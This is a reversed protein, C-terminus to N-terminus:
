RLTFELRVLYYWDSPTSTLPISSVKLTRPGSTLRFHDDAAQAYITMLKNITKKGYISWKWDDRTIEDGYDTKWIPLSPTGANFQEIDNYLSKYYEVQVSFVDLLRATPLNIGVMVPIRRSMKSYYVPYDEVGLVAVETFLRLDEPGRINEPLLSGLNLAARGMLKIGKFTWHGTKVTDIISDNPPPAGSVWSIEKVAGASDKVHGTIYTNQDIKPTLRSPHTSLYHNLVAGGGVEFWKSTVSFDYGPSFDGVPFYQNEMFLSFNHKLKGGMQTVTLLVGHSYNAARNMLLWGETTWLFGPYTGSRYLYEGLDRADPNYKYNFTGVQFAGGTSAPDGFQWRARAIPIMPKVNMVREDSNTVGQGYPWWVLGTLGVSVDFRNLAAEQLFTVGARNLPLMSPHADESAGPGYPNDGSVLHGYDIFSKVTLKHTVVDKEASALMPLAAWALGFLWSARSVNFDIKM